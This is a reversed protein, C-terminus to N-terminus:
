PLQRFFKSSAGVLPDFNRHLPLSSPSTPQNMLSRSLDYDYAFYFNKSSFLMKSVTLVKPLMPIRTEEAQAQATGEIEQPPDQTVEDSKHEGFSELNEVHDQHDKDAEVADAPNQQLEKTRKLDEESSLGQARRSDSAWGGRSFWKQAFRGYLGRRHIVDEAISTKRKHAGAPPDSLESPPTSPASVDETLSINDDGRDDESSESESEFDEGINGTKSHRQQSERARVIAQEADSQSSLPILAVENISYIPKGRIQAVQERRSISIL